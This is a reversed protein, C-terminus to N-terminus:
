VVLVCLINIKYIYKFNCLLYFFDFFLVCFFNNDVLFNYIIYSIMVNILYINNFILFCLICIFEFFYINYKQYIIDFILKNNILLWYFVYLIVENLM